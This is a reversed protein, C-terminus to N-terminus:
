GASRRIALQLLTTIEQRQKRLQDVSRVKLHRNQKRKGELVLVTTDHETIRHLYLLCCDASPQLGCITKAALSYLALQTTVGGYLGEEVAPCTERILDRLGRIVTRLEDPSGALLIEFDRHRGSPVPATM